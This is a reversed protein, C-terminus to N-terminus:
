GDRTGNKFLLFCVIILPTIDTALVWLTPGIWWLTWMGDQAPTLDHSVNFYTLGLYAYCIWLLSHKAWYAVTSM